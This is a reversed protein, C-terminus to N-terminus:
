QKYKIAHLSDTQIRLWVKEGPKYIKKASPNYTETNLEQGDVNLVYEQMQGMYTSSLVTAEIDGSDALEVAEPRLVVECSDGPNLEGDVFKVNFEKDLMKVKATKIVQRKSQSVIKDDISIVEAQIFNANGIFDAVFHSIPHQYIETPSGVQEIHGGNMIIIKDSLSMAESQDHTVYVSTINVRQQIKRIEKRMYVRLKADLNSLPEDFLLVGPEMVLARALAVRQQQGGSLQNPMRQDLDKLGVLELMALVKEKIQDKPMKKNVLGYAVNDFVNYHPFLAYSQFVMSSDRKDPTKENIRAGDFLIEGDSIAEFGAIMRLITTKGCGSPGLLTVFEGGEIDVNIHDVALFTGKGDHTIYEKTLNKLNISSQKAM